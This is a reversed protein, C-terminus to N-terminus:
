EAKQTMKRKRLVIIVSIVIAAVILAGGVSIVVLWPFPPALPSEVRASIPNKKGYEPIWTIKQGEVTGTTEIIKGPVTISVSMDVTSMLQQGFPNSSLDTSGDGSFDLAGSVILFDGDREIHLSSTDSKGDNFVALPVNEFDYETGFFKGDDFKKTTVGSGAPFLNETKGTATATDGLKELEKALGVIVSGSVTDGPNVALDVTFKMCGSLALTALALTLATAVVKVFRLIEGM